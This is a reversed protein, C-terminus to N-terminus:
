VQLFRIVLFPDSQQVEDPVKYPEFSSTYQDSDALHSLHDIAVKALVVWLSLLIILTVSTVIRRRNNTKQKHYKASSKKVINTRVACNTGINARILYYSDLSKIRNRVEDHHFVPSLISRISCYLNSISPWLVLKKCFPGDQICESSRGLAMRYQRAFHLRKQHETVNHNRKYGGLTNLNFLLSNMLVRRTEAFWGHNLPYTM